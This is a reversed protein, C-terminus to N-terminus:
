TRFLIFPLGPVLADMNCDASDANASDSASTQESLAIQRHLSAGKEEGFSSEGCCTNRNLINM